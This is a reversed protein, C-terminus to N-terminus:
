HSELSPRDMQPHPANRGTLRMWFSDVEHVGFGLCQLNSVMSLDMNFTCDQELNCSWHSHVRHSSMCLCSGKLGRKGCVKQFSNAVCGRLLTPKKCQDSRNSSGKVLECDLVRYEYV